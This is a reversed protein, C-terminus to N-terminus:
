KLVFPALTGVEGVARQKTTERGALRGGTTVNVRM